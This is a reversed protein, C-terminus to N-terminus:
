RSKSSDAASGIQRQLYEGMSLNMLTNGNKNKLFYEIPTLGKLLPDGDLGTIRKIVKEFLWAIAADYNPKGRRGNQDAIRHYKARTGGDLFRYVVDVEIVTGDPKTPRNGDPTLLPIVEEKEAADDAAGPLLQAIISLGDGEETPAKTVDSM